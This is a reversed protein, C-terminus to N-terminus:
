AWFKLKLTELVRAAPFPEFIEQNNIQLAPRQSLGFSKILMKSTFNLKLFLCYGLFRQTFEWFNLWCTWWIERMGIFKLLYNLKGNFGNWLIKLFEFIKELLQRPALVFFLASGNWLLPFRKFVWKWFSDMKFTLYLSLYLLSVAASSYIFLFQMTNNM